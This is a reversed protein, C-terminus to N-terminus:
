GKGIREQFKSPSFALLVAMEIKNPLTDMNSCFIVYKEVDCEVDILKKRVMDVREKNDDSEDIVIMALDNNKLMKKVMVPIKEIEPATKREYELGDVLGDMTKRVNAYVDASNEVCDVYAIKM